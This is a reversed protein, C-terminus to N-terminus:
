GIGNAFLDSKILRPKRITVIASEGDGSASSLLLQIKKPRQDAEGAFLVIGVSSFKPSSITWIGDAASAGNIQIGKGPM